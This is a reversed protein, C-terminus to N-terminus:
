DVKVFMSDFNIIIKKFSTIFDMGMNGDLGISKVKNLEVDVNKLEFKSNCISLPLNILQYAEHFSIGGIGGRRVIKKIATAELHEKHKEYYAISLNTKVNGTDFIFLLEEENSHVRLLSSIGNLLMLNRGYSPLETKEIPFIMKKDEPYIQTEGILRMFDLGIIAEPKFITDTEENPLSISVISNRFVIDGIELRDIIGRKGISSHIVGQIKVSDDIIRVGIEDALRKSIFTTEAGTDYIFKYKNGKVSVPVYMLQGRTVDEIILPIEVDRNPRIIEPKAENRIKEYYALIQNHNPFDIIDIHQSIQTLFNSMNDVSEAYLGQKGLIQSKVLILNSVNEFGIEDQANALLWDIAHIANQPQNFHLGIMAESLYKLMEYQMEDKLKPYEKELAFWDTQNILNGVKEDSEQAIVSENIVIFVVLFLLLYRKM